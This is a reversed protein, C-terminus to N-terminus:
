SAQSDGEGETRAAAAHLLAALRSAEVPSLALPFMEAGALGAELFELGVMRRGERELVFVKARTKMLRGPIRVDRITHVIKAGFM